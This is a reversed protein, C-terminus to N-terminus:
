RSKCKLIYESFSLCLVRKKNRQLLYIYGKEDGVIYKADICLNEIVFMKKPFDPNIKKEKETAEVVNLYGDVNLGCIEVSGFGIAGYKLLFEKYELPFSIGLKKEAENLQQLSCGGTYDLNEISELIELVRSM